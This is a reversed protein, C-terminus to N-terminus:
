TRSRCAAIRRRRRPTCPRQSSLAADMELLTDRLVLDSASLAPADGDRLDDTM